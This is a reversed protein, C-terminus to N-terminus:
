TNLKEYSMVMEYIGAKCYYFNYKEGEKFINSMDDGFKFKKQGVIVYYTTLGSEGSADEDFRVAGAASSVVANELKNANRYNVFIAIGLIIMVLPIVAILIVLNIPNSLLAARSRENALFMAFILCLGFITFVIMFIATRWSYKRSYGAMSNLWEKQKPSLQRRKNYNLDNDTFEFM